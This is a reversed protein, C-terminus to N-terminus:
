LLDILFQILPADAPPMPFDRMQRPRVWKLVQGEKPQAIGRFRRCVFLPMLLHFDDYSHSAFTFPALCSIDTEIGIEEYLERILCEEPTEGPEVKGGPFEWLGALQKGEPRQALLVRGDTDVLACAAVLVLRKGVPHPGTM